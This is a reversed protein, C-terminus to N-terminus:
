ISYLWLTQEFAWFFSACAIHEALMNRSHPRGRRRSRVYPAQGSHVVVLDLCHIVAFDPDSRDICSLCRHRRSSKQLSRYLHDCVELRSSAVPNELGCSPDRSDLAVQSIRSLHWINRSRRRARECTDSPAKSHALPMPTPRRHSYLPVSCSTTCPVVCSQRQTLHRNVDMWQLSCRLLSIASLQGVQQSSIGM